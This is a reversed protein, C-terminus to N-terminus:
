KELKQRTQSDVQRAHAGVKASVLMVNNCLIIYIINNCVPQIRCYQLARFQYQFSLVHSLLSPYQVVVDYQTSCPCSGCPQQPPTAKYQVTGRLVTYKFPISKYNYVTLEQRMIFQILLVLQATPLQLRSCMEM